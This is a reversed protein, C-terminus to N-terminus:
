AENLDWRMFKCDFPTKSQKWIEKANSDRARIIWDSNIIQKDLAETERGGALSFIGRFSWITKSEHWILNQMINM